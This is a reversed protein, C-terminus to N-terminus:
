DNGENKNKQKLFNNERSVSLVLGMSVMTILMSSGGESFFPLSIGTNPLLSTAVAINILVQLAIQVSIGFCLLQSFKSKAELGIKIGRYVLFGFIFLLLLGGIFGLEEGIVAYIFDNAKEQLNAVKQASDGFGKGFLGGSGIGYLSQLVQRADNIKEKDTLTGNFLIKKWIEIRKAQYDKLIVPKWIVMLVAFVGVLSWGSFRKRSMEGSMWMMSVGILMFLICGSLHSQAILIICMIATMAGFVYFTSRKPLQKQYKEMLYAFFMIFTVKALESPQMGFVWRHTGNYDEKFLAALMLLGAVVMAASALNKIVFTSVQSALLMLALGILAFILQQATEYSASYHVALGAVTLVMVSIFYPFDVTGAYLPIINQFGTKIGTGIQKIEPVFYKHFFYGPYASIKNKGEM